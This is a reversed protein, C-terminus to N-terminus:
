LAKLRGLNAGERKQITAEVKPVYLQTEAPLRTSISAYSATSKNKLLRLVTGPGCNYAAVALRWDGFQQYLQRLYKAAARASPEVQKRQDLPWLSLGLDKATAPMLQFMGLAGAPSRARTDFGSEVEALWVLETPVREAAFITKLQPMLKEAGKPWPRPSVRKIWIEQEAAFSPNALVPPNTGSVTPPPLNTKLEEAVDFYDLRARLWAAYPQTEEHAELLPLATTAAGKLQALDLVYDGKLFEEYRGLFKGVQDRDVEGLAQLVEDDLNEQAWKQATDLVAGLDLVPENTQAWALGGTLLLIFITARVKM